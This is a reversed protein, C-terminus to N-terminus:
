ISGVQRAGASTPDSAADGIKAVNAGGGMDVTGDVDVAAQKIDDDSGDGFTFVGAKIHEGADTFPKSGNSAGKAVGLRRCDDEAIVSAGDADSIVGDLKVACLGDVHAEVPDPVTDALSM